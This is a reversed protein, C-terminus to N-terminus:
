KQSELWNLQKQLDDLIIHQAPSPNKELETIRKRIMEMQAVMDEQHSKLTVPPSKLPVPFQLPVTPQLPLPRRISPSKLQPRPGLPSSAMMVIPSKKHPSGPSGLQREIDYPSRFETDLPTIQRIDLVPPLVM